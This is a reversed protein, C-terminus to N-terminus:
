DRHSNYDTQFYLTTGKKIINIRETANDINVTKNISDGDRYTLELKLSTLGPEIVIYNDFYLVKELKKLPM